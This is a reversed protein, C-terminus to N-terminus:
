IFACSVAYIPPLGRTVDFWTDGEDVSGFLLGTPAGFFVSAPAQGAQGVALAGRLVTLYTRGSPLGQALSEWTAGADRTRWIAVGDELMHREGESAGALPAAYVTRPDRPHVALPFGFRSPLGASVDEWSAGSDDSRFVGAHNQQYMPSAADASAATASAAAAGAAGVLAHVCPHQAPTAPEWTRGSDVTRYVGGSSIAAFMTAADRPSPLIAHLPLGGNTPRWSASSPHARLATVESWSDGDDDSRFLGAPDVGAYLTDNVRRLSWVQEISPGDPYSMGDSSHRWTEGLDQSRWVAPGYWNSQGGAYITRTSEDYCLAFFSWTGACHPGTFRWKPHSEGAASEGASAVGEPHGIFVGKKTGVVLLPLSTV